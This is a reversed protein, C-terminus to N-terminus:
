VCKCCCTAIVSHFEALNVAAPLHMHHFFLLKVHRHQLCAILEESATALECVQVVCWCWSSVIGTQVQDAYTNDARLKAQKWQESRDVSYECSTNTHAHCRLVIGRWRTMTRECAHLLLDLKHAVLHCM